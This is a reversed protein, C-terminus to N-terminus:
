IINSMSQKKEIFCAKKLNKYEITALRLMDYDNIYDEVYELKKKSFVLKEKFFNCQLIIDDITKLVSLHDKPNLEMKVEVLTLYIELSDNVSIDRIRITDYLIDYALNLQRDHKWVFRAYRIAIYSAFSKLRSCSLYHKFLIKLAGDQTRRALNLLKIVIEKSEPYINELRRITEVAIEIWGQTECFDFYKLNLQLSKPHHFLSRKFVDSLLITADFNVFSLYDLYNLWFREVFVCAILCREYLFIIREQDGVRREFKIYNEWNIIQASELENVHFHPRRINEEFVKRCEFETATQKHVNYWVDIIEVRLISIINSETIETEEHFDEGPPICDHNFLENNHNTRLSQVIMNRKEFFETLGLYEEPLHKFIFEQFKFFNKLCNSTPIRILRYYINAANFIKNMEMEWSIYDNWLQDSHFDLGCMKLSREFENRIHDEEDYRETTLYTIYYIWLEVSVPIASLGNELVKEFEHINNNRKEFNAYKKWYGYCLPYLELFKSYAMRANVEINQEDVLHLLNEWQNFNSFDYQLYDWMEQFQDDSIDEVKIKKLLFPANGELDENQQQYRKRSNVTMESTRSSSLSMEGTHIEDVSTLLLENESDAKNNVCRRDEILIKKNGLDFIIKTLLIISFLHPLM